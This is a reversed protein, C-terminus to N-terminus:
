GNPDMGLGRDASSSFAASFWAAIQSLLGNDDMRPGSAHAAGATLAFALAAAAIMKKM